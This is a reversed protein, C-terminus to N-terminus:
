PQVKAVKRSLWADGSQILLTYFGAPLATVDLAQPQGPRLSGELVTAGLANLLRFPRDKGHGPLDLVLTEGFPNPSATWAEAAPDPAVADLAACPNVGGPFRSFDYTLPNCTIVTDIVAGSTDQFNVFVPRVILSRIHKPTSTVPNIELRCNAEMYITLDQCASIVLTSSGGMYITDPALDAYYLTSFECLFHTTAADFSASDAQNPPLTAASAPIPPPTCQAHALRPLLAVALVALRRLLPNIAPVEM